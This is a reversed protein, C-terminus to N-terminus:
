IQPGPASPKQSRHVAPTAKVAIVGAPQEEQSCVGFMTRLASPNRRCTQRGTVAKMAATTGNFSEDATRPTEPSNNAM